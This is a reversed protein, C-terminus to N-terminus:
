AEMGEPFSTWTPDGVAKGGPAIYNTSGKNFCPLKKYYSAAYKDTDVHSTLREPGFALGKMNMMADQIGLASCPM